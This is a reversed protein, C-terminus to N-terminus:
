AVVPGLAADGIGSGHPRNGVLGEAKAAEVIAQLLSDNASESMPIGIGGAERVPEASSMLRTCQIDSRDKLCSM